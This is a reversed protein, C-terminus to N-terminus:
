HCAQCGPIWSCTIMSTGIADGWRLWMRSVDPLVNQHETLIQINEEMTRKKLWVSHIDSWLCVLSTLTAKDLVYALYEFLISGCGSWPLSHQGQWALRVSYKASLFVSVAPSM